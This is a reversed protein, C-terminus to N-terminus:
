KNKYHFDKKQAEGLRIPYDIGGKNYPNCRMIRWISMPLAKYMPYYTFLLMAYSSCTPYFRCQNGLIPSLYKQYLRIMTLILSRLPGWKKNMYLQEINVKSHQNRMTM